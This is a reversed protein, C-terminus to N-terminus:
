DKINDVVQQIHGFTKNMADVLEKQSRTTIQDTMQLKALSKKDITSRNFLEREPIEAIVSKDDKLKEMMVHSSKTNHKIMNALFYLEATVYSERTKYDINSEKFSKLRESLNFRANFGHESPTIPSLIAHSISIANKVSTSFDPHTDVIMYDYSDLQYKDYNDMLWMYILMNKNPDNEISNELNDLYLDGAIISLHDNIEHIKVEGEKTFINGVTTDTDQISYTQTLNCQHDLDMYLVKKNKIYGLYEGFNYALTTKGVGGKIAAFTMIKMALEEKLM